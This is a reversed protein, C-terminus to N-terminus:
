QEEVNKLQTEMESITQEKMRLHHYTQFSHLTTVDLSISFTYFLSVDGELPTSTSIRSCLVAKVDMDSRGKMGRPDRTENEPFM